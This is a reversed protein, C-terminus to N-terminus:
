RFNAVKFYNLVNKCKGEFIVMHVFCLVLLNGSFVSMCNYNKTKRPPKDNRQLKMSERQRLEYKLRKKIALACVIMGYQLFLQAMSEQLCKCDTYSQKM